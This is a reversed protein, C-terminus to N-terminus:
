WKHKLVSPFVNQDSMVPREIKPFVFEDDDIKINRRGSSKRLEIASVIIWKSLANSFAFIANTHTRRTYMVDIGMKRPDMMVSV